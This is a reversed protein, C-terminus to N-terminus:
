FTMPFKEPLYNMCVISSKGEGHMTDFNLLIYTASDVAALSQYKVNSVLTKGWAKLFKFIFYPRIGNTTKAVSRPM